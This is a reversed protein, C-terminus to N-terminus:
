SDDWKEGGWRFPFLIVFLAFCLPFLACSLVKGDHILLSYCSWLVAFFVSVPVIWRRKRWRLLIYRKM